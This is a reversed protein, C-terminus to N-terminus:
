RVADNGKICLIDNEEIGDGSITYKTPDPPGSVSVQGFTECATKLDDLAVFSHEAEINPKTMDSTCSTTLLKKLM